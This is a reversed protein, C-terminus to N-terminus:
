VADSYWKALCMTQLIHIRICTNNINWNSVCVCVGCIIIIIILQAKPVNLNTKSMRELDGDMWVEIPDENGNGNYVCMSLCREKILISLCLDVKLKQAEVLLKM